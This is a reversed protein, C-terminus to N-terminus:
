RFIDEIWTIEDNELAIMDFRCIIDDKNFDPHSALFQSAVLRLTKRKKTGISYLAGGYRDSNRSKVEVFLLLNERAAILDIEGAKKFNYNREIIDFGRSELFSGARDEGLKGIEKKNIENM